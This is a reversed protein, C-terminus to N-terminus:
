LIERKMWALFTDWCSSKACAVDSIEWPNGDHGAHAASLFMFLDDTFSIVGAVSASEM